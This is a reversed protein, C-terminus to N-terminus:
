RQPTRGRDDSNMRDDPRRARATDPTDLAGAGQRDESQHRVRVQRALSVAFGLRVPDQVLACVIPITTATKKLATAASTGSALIVDPKLAVLEAAYRKFNSEENAAWRYEIRITRGDIWGLTNLGVQFAKLSSQVFPASQAGSLLVCLPPTAKQQAWSAVPSAVPSAVAVGGLAAILGRRKVKDARVDIVM